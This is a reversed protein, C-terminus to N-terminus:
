KSSVVLSTWCDDLGLDAAKATETVKLDSAKAAHGDLIIKTRGDIRGTVATKGQITVQSADVSTIIGSYHKQTAAQIDDARGLGDAISTTTLTLGFCVALATLLTKNM